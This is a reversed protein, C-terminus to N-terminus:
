QFLTSFLQFLLGAGVGFQEHLYRCGSSSGGHLNPWLSPYWDAKAMGILNLILMIIYCLYHMMSKRTLKDSLNRKLKKPCRCYLTYVVFWIRLFLFRKFLYYSTACSWFLSASSNLPLYLDCFKILHNSFINFWQWIIESSCLYLFCCTIRFEQDLFDRDVIVPAPVTTLTM